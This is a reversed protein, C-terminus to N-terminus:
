SEEASSSRHGHGDTRLSLAPISPVEYRPRSPPPERGLAIRRLGHPQPGDAGVWHADPHETIGAIEARRDKLRMAVLIYFTTLGNRTWAEVTTFDVAAISEWHAKLFTKWTTAGKRRPAPEIGNQMLISGVTTDSIRHGLNALAGQIRDYGWAPNERAMRLVLRAVCAPIQPRGASKRRRGSFDWKAAVLRRHWRM